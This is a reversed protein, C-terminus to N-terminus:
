FKKKRNKISHVTLLNIQEKIIVFDPESKNQAREGFNLVNLLIEAVEKYTTKEKRSVIERVKITLYKL